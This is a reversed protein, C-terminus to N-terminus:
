LKKRLKREESILVLAVIATIAATGFHHTHGACAVCFAIIADIAFLILFARTLRYDIRNNM